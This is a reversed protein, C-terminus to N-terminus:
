RFWERVERDLELLPDAREAVDFSVCIKSTDIRGELVSAHPAIEADIEDLRGRFCFRPEGKQFM